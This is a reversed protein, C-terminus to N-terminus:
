DLANGADNVPSRFYGPPRVSAWPSYRAACPDLRQRRCTPSPTRRFLVVTVWDHVPDQVSHLGTTRSAKRGPFRRGPLSRMSTGPAPSPISTSLLAHFGQTFPFAAPLPFCPSAGSATGSARGTLLATVVPGPFSLVFIAGSRPYSSSGESPRPANPPSELAHQRARRGPGRNPRATKASPRTGAFRGAPRCDPRGGRPRADFSAVGCPEDDQGVGPHKLSGKGPRRKETTEMMIIILRRRSESGM